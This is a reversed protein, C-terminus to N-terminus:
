PSITDYLKKNTVLVTKLDNINILSGGKKVKWFSFVKKQDDKLSINKLYWWIGKM